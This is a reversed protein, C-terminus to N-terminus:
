FIIDILVKIIVAALLIKFFLLFYEKKKLTSIHKRIEPLDKFSLAKKYYDFAEDYKGARENCLGTLTYLEAKDSYEKAKNLCDLAKSFDRKNIYYVGFVYNLDADDPYLKTGKELYELQKENDDLSDACLAAYYYLWNDNKGLALAKELYFIAKDYRELGFLCLGAESYVWSDNRGLEMVKEITQYAKAYENQLRYLYSLESEYLIMDDNDKIFPHSKNLYTFAEKYKEEDIKKRFLKIYTYLLLSSIGYIDPNIKLAASLYKEAESYKQLHYCSRGAEYNWLATNCGEDKIAMLIELAKEYEENNNYAAALMIFIDYTLQEKPLNTIIDIIEKHKCAKQLKELQEKLSTINQNELKEESEKKSVAMIGVM